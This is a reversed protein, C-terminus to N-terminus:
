DEDVGEGEERARTLDKWVDPSIEDLLKNRTESLQKLAWRTFEAQLKRFSNISLAYSIEYFKEHEPMEKLTKSIYDSLEDLEDLHKNLEENVRWWMASKTNYREKLPYNKYRYHTELAYFYVRIRHWPQIHTEFNEKTQPFCWNIRMLYKKGLDPTTDNFSQAVSYLREVLSLDLKDSKKSNFAAEGIAMIKTLPNNTTTAKVILSGQTHEYINKKPGRRSLSEFRDLASKEEINKDENKNNKETM